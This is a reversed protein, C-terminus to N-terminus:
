RIRNSWSETSSSRWDMYISETMRLLEEVINGTQQERKNLALEGPSNEKIFRLNEAINESQRELEERDM